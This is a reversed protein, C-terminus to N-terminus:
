CCTPYFMQLLSLLRQHVEEMNGEAGQSTNDTQVPEATPSASPQQPTPDQTTSTMKSTRQTATQQSVTIHVPMELEGVRCWYWDTNEIKLGSMTVTLVKRNNADSTQNLTVSTGNLTGSNGSVCDGGMKCWKMDGSNSYYCRVTVSEGEVVTVEQQDVYLEPTGSCLPVSVMSSRHVVFSSLPPVSNSYYCRVTVSGGEVGTVEQQDVYLEPIGSCLPVSVMSSRHVVFSSLPPVSNSYYCRVTVSGGEVGTVEQQDVYLEPIGSCLPVSVM